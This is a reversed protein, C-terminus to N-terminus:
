GKIINQMHMADIDYLFSLNLILERVEKTFCKDIDVNKPMSEILFGFDFNTNIKLKLKNNRRIDDSIIETSTLPVSMFVDSFTTTIDEYRTTNIKPLRFYEVLKEYDKKGVNNYLVINLIPHNFIENASLPSYLEYIYNNINDQKIKTKLLGIDELK